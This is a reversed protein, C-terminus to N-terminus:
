FGPNQILAKNFSMERLPIPLLVDRESVNDGAQTTYKRNAPAYTNIDYVVDKLSEVLDGWRILDQRRLFEGGLELMREKKIAKRFETKTATQLNSLRHDVNSLNTITATASAGTGVTSNISITPVSTYGSGPRTIYIETIKGAAIVAVAEAGTGGGGTITVKPPNATGYGSGGNVVRINKVREGSLLKGYGRERVQNVYDVALINPKDDPSSENDAEAYMLLVDSYRLLPFNQPTNAGNRAVVEFERRWKGLDMNYIGISANKVGVSGTGYTYQVHTWDRRIDPSYKLAKTDLQDVEYQKFFYGNTKIAAVSEGIEKDKSYPGSMWGHQGTEVFSNGLRNGWFEVEWISEKVDYKDQAYNIFVQEFSPNLEHEGSNIVKLAYTKADHYRDVDMLPKGAMHLFVRCLIGRVTSLSIRGGYGIKSATEKELLSEAKQMDSVIQGYVTEKPTRAFDVNNIDKTSHLQLPVDGFHSVLLFYYYSRLFLAEGLISNRTDQNVGQPKDINEILKNAREIGFYLYRWFNQVYTDSASHQYTNLSGTPQQGTMYTEDTGIAIQYAYWKGYVNGDGLIDYVGNLANKLDGETNYYGEPSVYDTPIQTLFKKCGNLALSVAIFIYGIIYKM